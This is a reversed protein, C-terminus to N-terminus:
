STAGPMHQRSVWGILQVSSSIMPIREHQAIEGVQHRQSAERLGNSAELPGGTGNGGGHMAQVEAVMGPLSGGRGVLRATAQREAEWEAEKAMSELVWDPIAEDDDAAVADRGSGSGQLGGGAM